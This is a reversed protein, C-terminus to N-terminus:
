TNPDGLQHHGCGNCIYERYEDDFCTVDVLLQGGCRDCTPKTAPDIPTAEEILPDDPQHRRRLIGM